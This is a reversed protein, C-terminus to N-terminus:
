YQGSAGSVAGHTGCFKVCLGFSGWLEDKRIHSDPDQVNPRWTLPQGTLEKLKVNSPDIVIGAGSMATGTPFGYRDRIITVEGGNDTMIKTLSGGISDEMSTRFNFRDWALRSFASFLAEGAFLMKRGSSASDEFLPNLWRNIVPWELLGNNGGLNLENGTIQALFGDTTYLAGDAATPSTAKGKKGYILANNIERHLKLTKKLVERPMQAVGSRMNVVDQIDSVSVTESIRQIYNDRETPVSGNGDNANALEALQAGLSLLPQNDAITQAATGRFGRTVTLSNSSVATVVLLERTTPNFLLSNAVVPKADDVVVTTAAANYGGGNNVTVQTPLVDDEGWEFKPQTTTETGLMSLIKYFKGDDNNLDAVENAIDRIRFIDNNGVAVGTTQTTLPASVLNTLDTFAM